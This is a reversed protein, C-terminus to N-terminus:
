KDFVKPVVLLDNNNEGQNLHQGKFIKVRDERWVAHDLSVGSLSEPVKQLKLKNIKEVYALIKGLQKTFSTLEQESLNLKALDSITKITKKNISM